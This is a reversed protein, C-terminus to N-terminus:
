PLHPTSNLSDIYWRAEDHSFRLDAYGTNSFSFRVPRTRGSSPALGLLARLVASLFGGHSVILYRGPKLLVMERLAISARIHLDWESEGSGFIPEFPSTGQRDSITQRAIEYNVGQAEGHHREKWIDAYEVVLGYASAIQEATERARLLPSSIIRDFRRARSHWYQILASIENYAEEALPYDSQGQIIGDRNAESLGHRLLIYSSFVKDATM